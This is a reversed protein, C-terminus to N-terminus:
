KGAKEIDELIGKNCMESVDKASVQNSHRLIEGGLFKRNNDIWKKNAEIIEERFRALAAEARQKSEETVYGAFTENEPAVPYKYCRMPAFKTQPRCVNKIEEMREYFIEMVRMWDVRPLSTAVALAELVAIPHDDVKVATEICYTAVANCDLGYCTVYSM